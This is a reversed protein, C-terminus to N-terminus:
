GSFVPSYKRYVLDYIRHSFFGSILAMVFYSPLYLLYVVNRLIISLFFFDGILIWTSIQILLGTLLIIKMSRLRPKRWVMVSGTHSVVGQVVSCLATGVIILPIDRLSLTLLMIASYQSVLITPWGVVGHTVLFSGLKNYGVLQDHLVSKPVFGSFVSVCVAHSLVGSVLFSLFLTLSLTLFPEFLPPEIPGLSQVVGSVIVAGVLSVITILFGTFMIALKYRPLPKGFIVDMIKHLFMGILVSNLSIVILPLYVETSRSPYVELLRFWLFFAVYSASFVPVGIGMRTVLFSLLNKFSVSLGNEEKEEIAM